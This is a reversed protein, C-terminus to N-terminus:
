WSLEVPLPWQELEALMRDGPHLPTAEFSSGKTSAVAAAISECVYDSTEDTILRLTMRLEDNAAFNAWVVISPTQAM